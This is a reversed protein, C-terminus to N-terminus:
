GQVPQKNKVRDTVWNKFWDQQKGNTFIEKTNEEVSVSGGNLTSLLNKASKIINSSVSTYTTWWGFTPKSKESDKVWEEYSELQGKQIKNFDLSNSYEGVQYDRYDFVIDLSDHTGSILLNKKSYDM